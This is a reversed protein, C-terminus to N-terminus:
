LIKEWAKNDNENDLVNNYEKWDHIKMLDKVLDPVVIKRFNGFTINPFEVKEIEVGTTISIILKPLMLYNRAQWFKDLSGYKCWVIFGCDRVFRCISWEDEVSQWGPTEDMSQYFKYKKNNM